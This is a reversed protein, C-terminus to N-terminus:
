STHRPTTPHKMFRIRNDSVGYKEPKSLPSAIRFPYPPM